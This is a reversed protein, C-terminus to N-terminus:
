RLLAQRNLVTEWHLNHNRKWSYLLFCFLELHSAGPPLVNVTEHPKYLNMMPPEWWMQPNWKGRSRRHQQCGAWQEPPSEPVREPPQHLCRCCQLRARCCSALSLSTRLGNGFDGCWSNDCCPSIVQNQGRAAPDGNAAGCRHQGAPYPVGPRRGSQFVLTVEWFSSM